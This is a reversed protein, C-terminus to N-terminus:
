LNEPTVNRYPQTPSVRFVVHFTEPTARARSPDFPLPMVPLTSPSCYTFEMWDM